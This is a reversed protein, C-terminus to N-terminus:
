STLAKPLSKLTTLPTRTVLISTKLLYFVWLISHSFKLLKYNLQFWLNESVDLFTLHQKGRNKKVKRQLRVEQTMLVRLVQAAHMDTASFM